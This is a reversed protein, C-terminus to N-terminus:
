RGFFGKLGKSKKREPQASASQGKSLRLARAQREADILRQDHRLAAEFSAIAPDTAGLDRQVMGRFYHARALAPAEAVIVSLAREAEMMSDRSKPVLNYRCWAVVAQLDPEEPTLELAARFKELARDFKHASLLRDGEKAILESEFAARAKATADASETTDEGREIKDRLAERQEKDSLVGHAESLAAFVNSVRARLHGLGKAHLSDPHLTMSVDSWIRRIEKRGASIPVGLLDFAHAQDQMKKEIAELKAVFEAEGAKPPAADTSTPGPARAAPKAPPPRSSATAPEAAPPSSSRPTVPAHTGPPPTRSSRVPKLPRSQTRPQTRPAAAPKAPPPAETAAAGVRLMQCAWLTYVLQAARQAQVKPTNILEQMSTGRVLADLIPEDTPRFRFHARYRALAATARVPEQLASGLEGGIRDADYHAGVGIGILELVNIKALKDLEHQAPALTVLGERLAFVRVLKRFCQKRLGESLGQPDLVGQNLLVQGLLGGGNAMAQLAGMLQDQGIFGLEMLVQGLVDTPEIWDTFVPMGGHFWITREGANPAPQDLRAVGTFRQHLLAFFLRPPSVQALSVSKAAGASAEPTPM